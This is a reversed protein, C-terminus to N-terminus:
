CFNGSKIIEIDIGYIAKVLKKKIKFLDTEVGKIDVVRNVKQAKDFFSFDAIYTGIKEGNVELPFKEQRKINEVEKAKERIDLLAAYRAELRSHYKVGKYETLLNNYKNKRKPFKRLLGTSSSSIDM